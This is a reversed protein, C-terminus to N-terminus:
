SRSRVYEVGGFGDSAAAAFRDLFDLENYVMANYVM